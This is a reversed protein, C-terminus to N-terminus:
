TPKESSSPSEKLIVQAGVWRDYPTGNGFILPTIWWLLCLTSLILFGWTWYMTESDTLAAHHAAAHGLEWPVFKLANRLLCATFGMKQGSFHSVKLGCISKGLSAQRQSSEFLAFYLIFPLTMAVFSLLQSLWPNSINPPSGGTSFMVVAFMTGGWFVLVFWDIAFSLIRRIALSKM